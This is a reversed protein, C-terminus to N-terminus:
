IYIKLNIIVTIICQLYRIHNQSLFAQVFDFNTGIIIDERKWGLRLSNDVQARFYNFLLENSNFNTYLWSNLSCVLLGKNSLM